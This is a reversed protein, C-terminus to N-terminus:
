PAVLAVVIKGRGHGQEMLWQAEAVDDIGITRAIHPVLVRAAALQALRTWLAAGPRLVVGVARQRSTLRAFVSAVGTGVAAATSGNTNVYIGDADLV